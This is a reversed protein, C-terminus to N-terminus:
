LTLRQQKNDQHRQQRLPRLDVYGCIGTAKIQLLVHGPQPAFVPAEVQKLTHDATVQLSPNAFPTKIVSGATKLSFDSQGRFPVEAPESSRQSLVGPAM